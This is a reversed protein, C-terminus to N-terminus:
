LPKRRPRSKTLNCFINFTIKLSLVFHVLHPYHQLVIGVFDDLIYSHQRLISFSAFCLNLFRALCSECRKFFLSSLHFLFCCLLLFLRVVLVRLVLLLFVGLWDLLLSSGCFSFRFCTKLCCRLLRRAALRFLGRGLQAPGGRGVTTIAVSFRAPPVLLLVVEVIQCIPLFDNDRGVWAYTANSEEIAQTSTTIVRLNSCTRLLFRSIPGSNERGCGM